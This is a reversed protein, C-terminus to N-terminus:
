QAAGGGAAALHARNHASHVTPTSPAPHPRPAARWAARLRRAADVAAKRRPSHLAGQMRAVVVARSRALAAPSSAISRAVGAAATTLKVVIPKAAAVAPMAATATLGLGGLIIPADALRQDPLLVLEAQVPKGATFVPRPVVSAFLRNQYHADPDDPVEGPALPFWAVAPGVTGPRSLGVGATGLFAVTAPSFTPPERQPGPVWAWRANVRAWRGYHSTAFGWPADDIWTWGWQPLSRWKGYRFPAWDEPLDKPFWVDGYTDDTEWTGAAALAAIGPLDGSVYATSAAADGESQGRWWEAFSDAPAEATVASDGLGGGTEAKGALVAVRPADGATIDYDGPAALWVGGQPLDIEVVRNGDKGLHLGIRGQVLGIQLFAGDLTLLRLEGEGALAIRNGMVRLEAQGSKAARLGTGSVVPENVLADSWEGGDPHYQVAGQVATIRGVRPGASDEACGAASLAVACILTSFLLRLLRM